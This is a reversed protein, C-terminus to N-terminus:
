APRLPGSRGCRRRRSAHKNLFGSAGARLALLVNEDMEFTTLILVRV